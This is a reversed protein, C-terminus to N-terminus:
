KRSVDGSPVAPETRCASSQSPSVTTTSAPSATNSKGSSPASRACRSEPASAVMTRVVAASGVSYPTTSPRSPQTAANTSFGAHRSVKELRTLLPM